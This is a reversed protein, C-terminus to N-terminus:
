VNAMARSAAGQQLRFGNRFFTQSAFGRLFINQDLNAGYDATGSTAVGSVNKLAQGLNIVQQDKLVQKTIVQVNLPTEMIPTDTKTGATANPLVYDENYPDKADYEGYVTMTELATVDSEAQQKSNSAGSNTSANKAQTNSKSTKANDAVQIIKGNDTTQSSGVGGYFSQEARVPNKILVLMLIAVVFFIIPTKRYDYPQIAHYKVTKM